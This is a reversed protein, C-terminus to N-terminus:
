SIALALQYLEHNRVNTAGQVIFTQMNPRHPMISQEEPVVGEHLFLNGNTWIFKGFIDPQWSKKRDRDKKGANPQEMMFQEWYDPAELKLVECATRLLALLSAWRRVWLDGTPRGNRIEDIADECYAIIKRTRDCSPM